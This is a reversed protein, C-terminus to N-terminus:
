GNLGELIEKSICFIQETRFVETDPLNRSVIFRIYNDIEGLDFGREKGPKAHLYKVRAPLLDRMLDGKKKWLMDRNLAMLGTNRGRLGNVPTERSRGSEDISIVAGTNKNYIVVGKDDIPPEVLIYNKSSRYSEIALDYSSGEFFTDGYIIISRKFRFRNMVTRCYGGSGPALSSMRWVTVKARTEEKALTEIQRCSKGAMIVINRVGRSALEKIHHVILPIRDVKFLVKNCFHSWPRARQGKGMTLILANM